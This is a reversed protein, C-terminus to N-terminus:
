EISERSMEAFKEYVNQEEDWISNQENPSEHETTRKTPYQELCWTEVHKQLDHVNEFVIGCDECGIMENQKKDSNKIPKLAVLSYTQKSRTDDEFHFSQRKEQGEIPQDQFLKTCWRM